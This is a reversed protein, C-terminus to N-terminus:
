GGGGGRSGAVAAASPLRRAARGLRRSGAAALRSLASARRRRSRPPAPRIALPAARAGGIRRRGVPWARRTRRAWRRWSGRARRRPRPPAGGRRARRRTGARRRRRARRSGSRSRARSSGSARARRCTRRTGPAGSRATTASRPAGARASPDSGARDRAVAEGIEAVREPISLVAAEEPAEVLLALDGGLVGVSLMEVAVAEAEVRQGRDVLRGAIRRHQRERLAREVPDVLVPVVRLVAAVEFPQGAVPLRRRRAGLGALDVHHRHRHEGDAVLRHVRVNMQQLREGLEVLDPLVRRQAPPDFLQHRDDAVLDAHRGARHVQVQGVGPDRQRAVVRVAVVDLRRVQHQLGLLHQALPWAGRVSAM